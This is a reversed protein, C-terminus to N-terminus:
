SPGVLVTRRDRAASIIFFDSRGAEEEWDIIDETYEQEHVEYHAESTEGYTVGKKSSSKSAVRSSETVPIPRAELVM